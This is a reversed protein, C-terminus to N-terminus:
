ENSGEEGFFPVPRTVYDNHRKFAGLMVLLTLAFGALGFFYLLEKQKGCFVSLICLGAQALLCAKNGGSLDRNKFLIILLLVASVASLIPPFASDDSILSNLARLPNRNLLVYLLLFGAAIGAFVVLKRGHLTYRDNNKQQQEPSPIYDYLNWKNLTGTDGLMKRTPDGEKGRRNVRALFPAATNWCLVALLGSLAATIQPRLVIFHRLGLILATFLAALVCFLLLFRKPSVPLECHIKEEGETGRIATYIMKEGQRSALLWVPMMVLEAKETFNAPLTLSAGTRSVGEMADTLSQLAYNRTLGSFLGSEVDPAEAYSGSLYAPHFPQSKRSGLELWQATEDDFQSCADYLIGSVSVKANLEAEFEHTRIENSTVDTTSFEGKVPGKGEGGLSWFPIYVPRFRSVTEAAKMEGPVLPTKRLRERYIRECDERTVSFPVIRDPRRMRTMREELVNDSGCFICFSTMGSSTTHLSAGCSPCHYEITEIEADHEKKGSGTPDQISGVPFSSGCQGCLMEKKGIDYRLQGACNPCKFNVGTESVAFRNQKRSGM